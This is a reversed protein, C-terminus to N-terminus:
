GGEAGAPGWKGLLEPKILPLLQKLLAEHEMVAGQVLQRLGARREWMNGDLFYRPDLAAAVKYQEMHKGAQSDPALWRSDLRRYLAERLGQVEPDLGHWAEDDDLDKPM